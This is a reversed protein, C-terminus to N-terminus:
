AAIKKSFRRLFLGSVATPILALLPAIEPGTPPTTSAGKVQGFVQPTPTVQIGLVKKEICVQATDSGVVGNSETAKVQNIICIIGQDVPLLKEEVTKATINFIATGGPDLSDITFTLNRTNSDFNGVGSVFSLFQAFTDVVQTNAIKTNGTNKIIVQFNVLQNASYKPDSVSLNDVFDGTGPKQVLKNVSFTVSPPCIEGGGYVVQCTDAFIQKTSLLSLFALATFALSFYVLNKM